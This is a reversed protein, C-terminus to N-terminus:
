GLGRGPLALCSTARSGHGHSPGGQAQRHGAGFCGVDAPHATETAARARLTDLIRMQKNVREPQEFLTDAWHESIISPWRSQDQVNEGSFVLHNPVSRSKGGGDGWTLAAMRRRRRCRRVKCRAKHLLKGLYRKDLGDDLHLLYQFHLLAKECKALSFWDTTEEPARTHWLATTDALADQFSAASPPAQELATQLMGNFSPIEAEPIAWRRLNPPPLKFEAM